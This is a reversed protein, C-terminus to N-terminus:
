GVQCEVLTGLGIRIVRIVVEGAQSCSNGGIGSFTNDVDCRYTVTHPM